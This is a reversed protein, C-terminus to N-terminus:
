SGAFYDKDKKFQKTIYELAARIRVTKNTDMHSLLWVDSVPQIPVDLEILEPAVRKFFRPLLALGAGSRVASLVTASSNAALVSAHQRLLAQWDAFAMNIQLNTNEVIKHSFVDQITRPTGSLELYRATAYLAFPVQGLKRCV